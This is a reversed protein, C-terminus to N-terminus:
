GDGLEESPLASVPESCSEPSIAAFIERALRKANILECREKKLSDRLGAIRVASEKKEIQMEDTKSILGDITAHHQILRKVMSELQAELFGHPIESQSNNIALSQLYQVTLRTASELIQMADTQTNEPMALGSPTEVSSSPSIAAFIERALRKAEILEWRQKKLLDRLGAIRVASEKKEIQMEDTKSILGDITEDRETVSSELSVIKERNMSDTKWMVDIASKQNKMTQTAALIERKYERCVWCLVGWLVVTGACGLVALFTTM